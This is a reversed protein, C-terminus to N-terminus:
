EGKNERKEWVATLQKKAIRSGYYTGLFSLIFLIFMGAIVVILAILGRSSGFATPLVPIFAALALVSYFLVHVILLFKKMKNPPLLLGQFIYRTNVYYWVVFVILLLFFMIFIPWVKSMSDKFYTHFLAGPGIVNIFVVSLNLLEFLYKLGPSLKIGWDTRGSLPRELGKKNELYYRLALVGFVVVGFFVFNSLIFKFIKPYSDLRLEPPGGIFASLIALFGCILFLRYITKKLCYAFILTGLGWVGYSIDRLHPIYLTIKHKEGLFLLLILAFAGGFFFFAGIFTLVKKFLPMRHYEEEINNSLKELSKIINGPLIM